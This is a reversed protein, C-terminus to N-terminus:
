FLVEPNTSSDTDLFNKQTGSPWGWGERWVGVVLIVNRLEDKKFIQTM